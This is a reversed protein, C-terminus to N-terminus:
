PCAGSRTAVPSRSTCCGSTPRCPSATRARRMPWRCIPNNTPGCGICAGPRLTCGPRARTPSTCTAGPTSSRAKCSATPRSGAAAIEKHLRDVLSQPTGKPAWLGTFNILGFNKIGAEAFTPVDPLAAMRKTGCVALLRAKGGKVNGMVGPTSAVQYDITGSLMAMTAEGAGKYPFHLVNVGAAIGLAESV